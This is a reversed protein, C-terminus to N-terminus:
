RQRQWQQIGTPSTATYLARGRVDSAAAYEGQSATVSSPSTELAGDVGITYMYGTLSSGCFVDLTTGTPTLGTYTAQCSNSVTAPSLATLSGGVGIAFQYIPDNFSGIYLTTGSPSLTISLAGGDGVTTPSSETGLTGDAEVPFSVVSETTDEIAFLRTGDPTIAVEAANVPVTQAVSLSGDSAVSLVEIAGPILQMTNMDFSEGFGAYVTRADRGVVISGRNPFSAIPVARDEREVLSGDQAVDFPLVESTSGVSAFAYVHRGTLAPTAAAPSASALAGVGLVILLPIARFRSLLSLL